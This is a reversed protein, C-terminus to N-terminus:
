ACKPIANFAKIAKGSIYCDSSAARAISLSELRKKRTKSGFSKLWVYLAVYQQLYKSSVGCYGALFKRLHRHMANVHQLHYEGRIEPKHEKYNDSVNSLLSMYKYGNKELYNRTIKYQDVIVTAKEKDVHKAVTADLMNTLMFGVGPVSGYVTKTRSDIMCLVCAKDKSSMSKNDTGRKYSKRPLGNNQGNDAVYRVGFEGKVHNGKYSIPVLMEDMEVVGTMKTNKQNANFANLIKHRWTFATQYSIGCEVSCTALSNGTVTLWIFKKWTEADKRTGAFATNTSAFFFRGCKKCYFRQVGRNFGRKVIQGMKYEANCRPCDIEKGVHEEIMKNCNFSKSKKFYGKDSNPAALMKLIQDVLEKQDKKNLEQIQSLLNNKSNKM